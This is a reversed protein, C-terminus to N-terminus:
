QVGADPPGVSYQQTSDVSEVGDVASLRRRVTGADSGVTDTRGTIKGLMGLVQEVHLGAAELDGIVTDIQDRHDDSVTVVWQQAAM